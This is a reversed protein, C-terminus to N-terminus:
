EEKKIIMREADKSFIGDFCMAITYPSLEHIFRSANEEISLRPNFFSPNIIPDLEVLAEDAIFDLGETERIHPHAVFSKNLCVEDNAISISLFLLDPNVYAPFKKKLAELIELEAANKM